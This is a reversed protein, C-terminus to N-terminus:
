HNEEALTDTSPHSSTADARAAANPRATATPQAAVLPAPPGPATPEDSQDPIEATPAASRRTARVALVILAALSGLVVASLVPGPVWSLDNGVVAAAHTLAASVRVQWGDTAMSQRRFAFVVTLVGMALLLAGSLVTSLPVERRLRGLRWTVSRGGLLQTSGWDRRDWVLALASLPAVMGFVYTIGVAMAAPFSAAAGSITAVGALVPACCASAAGSFVGLGYVAGLGRGTGGRLAPMPLMFKAGGLMALGWAIMAAGGISFVVKHHGSVLGSLASAGLAIPLIITAVGAAFVLTMGLIQTRRHFTSAFYAPLMVSVCCPALLAVVGGLFSAFLTTGLLLDM